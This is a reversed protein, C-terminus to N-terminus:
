APAKFTIILTPRAALPNAYITGLGAVSTTPSYLGLGKYTGSRLNTGVATNLTITYTSGSACNNLSGQNTVIRTASVEGNFDQAMTWPYSTYKHAFVAMDLGTSSARSRIQFKLQVSLISSANALKAVIDAYNFHMVAYNGKDGAGPPWYVNSDWGIDAYNNDSESASGPLIGPFSETHTPQWSLKKTTEPPNDSGSGDTKATQQLATSSDSDIGMDSVAVQFAVEPADTRLLLTGSGGTRFASVCLRLEGDADPAYWAAADVQARLAASMVILSQGGPLMPSSTTPDTGDTTFRTRVYFCDGAVTGNGLGRVTVYYLRGALVPGANFTFMRLESTGSTTGANINGALGKTAYKTSRPLPALTDAIDQGALFIQDASVVSAGMQGTIQADQMQAIAQDLGYGEEGEVYDLSQQVLPEGIVDTLILEYTGRQEITVSEAAADERTGDQLRDLLAHPVTVPISDGGEEGLDVTATKVPTSPYVEVFDQDAVAAALGVPLTLTDLDVDIASYAILDGNISIAGGVEDFTSADAVYLTTAGIAAAAVAPEGLNRTSVSLVKGTLTM